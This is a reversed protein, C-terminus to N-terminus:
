GSGASFKSVPSRKWSKFGTPHQQSCHASTTHGLGRRGPHQQWCQTNGTGALSPTTGAPNQSATIGTSNQSTPKLLSHCLAPNPCEFSRTAARCMLWPSQTLCPSHPGTDRGDRRINEMPEPGMQQCTGRPQAHSLRLFLLHALSAGFFDPGPKLLSCFYCCPFEM